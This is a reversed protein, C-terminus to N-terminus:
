PFFDKLSLNLARTSALVSGIPKEVLLRRYDTESVNLGFKALYKPNKDYLVPPTSLYFIANDGINFKEALAAMREKVLRYDDANSTDIAQYHLRELFKSKISEEIEDREIFPSDAFVQDRFADDSLKSRSVGLVVIDNPLYGNKYLEFVAPILKRKALDGSAGFIILTLPDPNADRVHIM